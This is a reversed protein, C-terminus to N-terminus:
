AVSNADVGFLNVAFLPQDTEVVFGPNSIEKKRDHEVKKRGL